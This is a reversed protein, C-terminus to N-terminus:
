KAASVANEIVLDDDTGSKGDPGASRLRYGGARSRYEFQKGWLDFRQPPNLYRPSLFDLLEAIEDTDPSQGRENRYAEVADAMQKLRANTRRIKERRVAEEMLELSEWQRDGLRIEAVQWRGKEKRLRFATEIQAEVIAESGTQGPSIKRIQVQEKPLNAGALGQLLARAERVSLENAAWALTACSLLGAAAAAIRLKLSGAQFKM